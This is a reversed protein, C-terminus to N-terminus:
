RLNIEKINAKDENVVTGIGFTRVIFVIKIIRLNTDDIGTGSDKKTGIRFFILLVIVLDREPLNAVGYLVVQKSITRRESSEVEEIRKPIVVTESRNRIEDMQIRVRDDDEAIGSIWIKRIISTTGIDIWGVDWDATGKNRGVSDIKEYVVIDGGSADPEVIGTWAEYM